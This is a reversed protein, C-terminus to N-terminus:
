STERMLCTQYLAYILTVFWRADHSASLGGAPVYSAGHQDHSGDMHRSPVTVHGRSVIDDRWYGSATTVLCLWNTLVM